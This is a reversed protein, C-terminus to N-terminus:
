RLATRDVPSDFDLDPGIPVIGKPNLWLHSEYYHHRIHHFNVTPRIAPHQYLDRVYAWLAPYEHIARWNCKFHGFYVADFRVLTTFLRIDAETMHEGVLFRQRTLRGELWDLTEFVSRAAEEYADQVGAFGAKYVGNNLTDYIRANVADIEDRHESPYYDGEAAGLRDFASNFMRLIESSENSVITGHKKDWLVPVTVRSTCAPDARVYLEYLRACGNVTDPVVDPGPQFTWGDEGMLWHVVSLGIMGELGKLARMILTRHAWPCALSVYLHYRGAEAPFGRKGEPARGDATVFDRFVSPKRNLRGKDLTSEFGGRHWQGNILEGM